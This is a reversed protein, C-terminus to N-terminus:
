LKTSSQQSLLIINGLQEERKLENRRYREYELFMGAVILAIGVIPYYSYTISAVGGVVFVLGRMAIAVIAFGLLGLLLISALALCLGHLSLIAVGGIRTLLWATVYVGIVLPALIAYVLLGTVVTVVRVSEGPEVRSRVEDKYGARMFQFWTWIVQPLHWLLGYLPRFLPFLLRLRILLTLDFYRWWNVPSVRDYWIGGCGCRCRNPLGRWKFIPASSTSFTEHYARRSLWQQHKDM